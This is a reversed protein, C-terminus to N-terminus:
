KVHNKLIFQTLWEKNNKTPDSIVIGMLNSLASKFEPGPKMGLAKMDDGNIALDEIFVPDGRRIINRVIRILQKMKRTIAPRGARARNGKRDAVRIRILDRWDNKGVEQLWKRVTRITTGSDSFEETDNSKCCPCKM